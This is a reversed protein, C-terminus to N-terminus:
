ETIGFNRTRRVEQFSEYDYKGFSKLVTELKSAEFKLVRFQEFLEPDTGKVLESNIRRTEKGKYHGAPPM